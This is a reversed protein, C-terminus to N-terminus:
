RQVVNVNFPETNSATVQIDTADYDVEVLQKGGSPVTIPGEPDDFYTSGGDPSYSITVDSSSSGTNELYITYNRKSIEVSVGGSIDSSSALENTEPSQDEQVTVTSASVDIPNPTSIRITDAANDGLADEIADTAPDIQNGNSDEVSVPTQQEVPLTGASWTGVTINPITNIDLSGDDTVTITSASVDLPETLNTSITDDVEVTILNESLNAGPFDNIYDIRNRYKYIEDVM